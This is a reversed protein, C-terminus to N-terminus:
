SPSVVVPICPKVSTTPSCSDSNRNIESSRESTIDPSFKSFKENSSKENNTVDLDSDILSLPGMLRLTAAVYGEELAMPPLQHQQLVRQIKEFAKPLKNGPIHPFAHHVSHYPLGGMLWNVWPFTKINRCAYLQTLQYNGAQQWRGFHELHDRAQMIIGTGRELILLFIVYRWLSMAQLSLCSIIIAQMGVMGVVDLVLQQSLQPSSARQRFGHWLIKVILGLSGLGFIDILWQHRVYWRQWAPASRYELATWQVREPDRLDLGNQGHHLRHLQCYTSAPILMPWAILRPMLTDFWAWGTLTRHLADHNCILWFTYPISTAIAGLVFLGIHQSHWTLLTLGITLGGLTLFRFFGAWPNIEKFEAVASRLDLLLQHDNPNTCKM